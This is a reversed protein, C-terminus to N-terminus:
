IHVYINKLENNINEEVEELQKLQVENTANLKMEKNVDLLEILRQIKAKDNENM